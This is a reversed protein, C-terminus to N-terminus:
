PEIEQLTTWRIPRQNNTVHHHGRALPHKPSGDATRGLCFIADHKKSQKIMRSVAEGTAAAWPAAGWAAMMLGADASVQWIKEMNRFVVGCATPTEMWAKCQGPDPSRFPFLNVLVLGGFGWARSFAIIRRLSPDDASADATSPNLMVWCVYPGTSWWRRLEWRYCEDPGDIEASGHIALPEIRVPALRKPFLSLQEIM